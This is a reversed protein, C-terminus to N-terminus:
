VQNKDYSLSSGSSNIHVIIIVTILENLFLYIKNSNISIQLPVIQSPQLISAM